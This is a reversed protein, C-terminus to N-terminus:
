NSPNRTRSDSLNAYWRHRPRPDPIRPALNDRKRNGSAYLRERKTLPQGDIEVSAPEASSAIPLRGTGADAIGVMGVAATSAEAMFAM